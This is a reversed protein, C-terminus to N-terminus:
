NHTHSAPSCSNVVNHMMASQRWKPMGIIAHGKGAGTQMTYQFTPNSYTANM